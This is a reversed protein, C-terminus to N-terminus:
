HQTRSEAEAHPSSDRAEHTAPAPAHPPPPPTPPRVLPAPQARDAPAPPRYHVAEPAVGPPSVPAAVVVGPPPRYRPAEPTGVAPSVPAAVVGPPRDSRPPPAPKAAGSGAPTEQPTLAAPVYSNERPLSPL